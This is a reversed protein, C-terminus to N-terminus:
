WPRTSFTRFISVFLFFRALADARLHLLRARVLAFSLSRSRVLSLSLAFPPSSRLCPRSAPGAPHTRQRRPGVHAARQRRRRRGLERVVPDVASQGDAGFHQGRNQRRACVHRQRQPRGPFSSPSALLPPPHAPTSCNGKARPPSLEQEVRETEASTGSETCERRRTRPAHTAAGIFKIGMAALTDPLDPKESAHGWGPWVADVGKRQAIECIVAVNAYNNSNKGGPVQLSPPPPPAV